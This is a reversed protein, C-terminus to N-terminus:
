DMATIWGSGSEVVCVVLSAPIASRAIADIPDYAIVQVKTGNRNVVQYNHQM